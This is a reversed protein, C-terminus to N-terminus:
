MESAQYSIKIEPFGYGRFWLLQKKLFLGRAAPFYLLYCSFVIYDSVEVTM